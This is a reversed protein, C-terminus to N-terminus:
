NGAAVQKPDIEEPITNGAPIVGWATDLKSVPMSLYLFYFEGEDFCITMYPGLNKQLPRVEAKREPTGQKFWTKPISVYKLENNNNVYCVVYADKHEFAKLIPVNVYSKSSQEFAKQAFMSVACCIILVLTLLRKKM